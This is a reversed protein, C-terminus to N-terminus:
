EARLTLGTLKLSARHVPATMDRKAPDLPREVNDFAVRLMGTTTAAAPIPLVIDTAAGDALSVVTAEERGITVAIRRVAGPRLAIGTAHLTLLLAQDAPVPITLTARSGEMWASGDSGMVWFRGLASGLGASRLVLPLKAPPPPAPPPLAAGPLAVGRACFVIDGTRSCRADPGLFDPRLAAQTAAGFYARTEGPQLPLELADSLWRECGFWKPARGLGVDGTRAGMRVADLLMIPGREKTSAEPACGPFPAVTFLTTGAPIAPVAIPEGHAWVYHAGELLPRIDAIQLAAAVSLLPFALRRPLRETAAVGGLMLAYGVPWFARGPARFSGFIDEWPKAGLDLVLVHGAYIRSSLSFVALGGLIAALASAPRPWTRRRLASIIAALLLLMVGAGLWNFGEYQGGTADIMPLGAGFLGSRQPWIPSLLNMSFFVFGKDGGSAPGGLMTFIGVALVGSLLYMAVDRRWFDRRRLAAQLPIAALIAACLQFLYPHTLISVILLAMPAAWSGRSEIRRVALGLAFLLLFHACLNLHGQRVLLAPWAAALVGAVLSACRGVHLGRAAYVAAVPQLLWCAAMFGGFWNRPMAGAARAWVKAALSLLPNSDILAISISHPWFLRDTDLLPWRWRDAQFALHGTLAQAQDPNPVHWGPGSGLIASLPLVLWVAVAGVFLAAAALLVDARREGRRSQPHPLAPRAAAAFPSVSM